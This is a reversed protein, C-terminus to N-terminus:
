YNAIKVLAVRFGLRSMKTKPPYSARAASRCDKAPHLWCGGRFVRWSGREGNGPTVQEPNKGYQYNPNYYDRCWEFVNGHMDYFKWANPYYRKVPATGAVGDNYSSEEAGGAIREYKEYGSQDLFNGYYSLYQEHDGYCFRKSTGARCAYEWQAETPLTFVWHPSLRGNKRELATLRRCFTMADEWSVTEVPLNEGKFHSPNNGMVAKWQAQTVETEGLAFASLVVTVQREDDRRGHETAPSGMVFQGTKMPLFIMKPVGRGLAVEYRSLGTGGRTGLTRSVVNRGELWAEAIPDGLRAAATYYCRAIELNLRVGTGMEYRQALWCLSRADGEVAKKELTLLDSDPTSARLEASVCPGIFALLFALFNFKSQM